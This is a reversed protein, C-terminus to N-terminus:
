VRQLHCVLGRKDGRQDKKWGKIQKMYIIRDHRAINFHALEEPQHILHAPHIFTTNNIDFTEPPITWLDRGELCHVALEKYRGDGYQVNDILRGTHLFDICKNKPMDSKAFLTLMRREMGNVRNVFPEGAEAVYFHQVLFADNCAVLWSRHSPGRYASQGYVRSNVMETTM